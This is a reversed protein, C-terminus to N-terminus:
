PKPQSPATPATAAAPAAPKAGASAPLPDLLGRELREVKPADWQGTVRFERASALRLPERLLWQGVFAGLGVAPNVAAYALSAGSTNLEPVVVVHLNQTERGIDASGAMAVMAQLGRLHLNETSAVGGQILVDASATDFAFGQQFLDRFDLQLRRPLAQLSMVGLLRAAGPDMQLFQGGKIDLVLRGGLTPLHLGLPSGDWRLTGSLRGAAGRLVRGFGLRELLAGGNAVDLDFGLAMRRRAQGPVAEWRGDATLTADNNALRLRTLQWESRGAPDTPAPRNVAELSLSGLRRGRLEFDAIEIDLAPLAAGPRDILQAVPDAPTAASVAADAEAPVSLRSLQARLRGPTGSASGPRPERYELTGATQDAQLLARWGDGADAAGPATGAALRQLDLVVGTLRRGALLLEPTNLQVSQPLWTNDDAAGTPGTPNAALLARWADLDLRNPALVARGGPQPKPLPADWAMASRLLRVGGPTPETLMSAKLPGLDLRWLDRIADLNADRGADRPAAGARPEASSSLRLPLPADAAKGLPAPLDIALGQLNSSLQWEAHAASGAQPAPLSAQWRYGAQGQLRQALRQVTPGLESARRLADASASGNLQIRLSGDAQTNADILAEGGLLQARLGSIALGKNGADVRGRLNALPPLDPRLRLDNGALQLAARVQTDASRGLPVALALKLEAAGSASAADLSHGSAEALPTSRVLRLLDAVPGRVLGDIALPPADASLEAIGGQVGDLVLGWLTGRAHQFRMANREFVLEGSIGSIEPWTSEWAPEPGGAPVSPVPWLTANHVLGAIRFDGDRKNVFPFDWLDGQVRFSVDRLAGGRVARQTWQRLEAGIGLPLYRAVKNARGESLSGQLVLVGPLRGGKGFGLGTGTRWTANLMGAADANDFRANSVKLEVAPPANGVGPNVRWQLQAAFKQLPLVPDAFVGPLTLQGGALSLTAQGGAQNADIQLDAGRWGPRGIGQPEPSAAASIALGKVAASARWTRPQDLPGDWQADVASLTGEPELQRLLSRLGTGIPLREALTALLPLDLRDASLQGGDFAPLWHRGADPATAPTAAAPQTAAVAAPRWQLAQNSPAWVAGDPMTFALGQLALRAGTGQREAVLRVGLEALAVPALARALQVQVGRLEADLTVVQPVGQDWDVWARLAARGQQLDVPLDLHQRLQRVDARPLHAYLRGKWRQWDGARSLLAGRATGVIAFREGWDPPPTADLRLEHRRGRNRLLLQVNALVLPAAGRQEDLWRVTAGRVLLEEQVFLWDAGSAGDLTPQAPGMALGGVFWRGQADRRVDLSADEILLQAFRLRLALLSPVSLAAQVQPLRLAQQGQADHLVVDQLTFAPLWGGGTAAIRGIQVPHGLAQSALMEARPRWEDLRPLILWQLTLWAVLALAWAASLLGLALRWGWRWLGRRLGQWVPGAWQRRLPRVAASLRSHPM